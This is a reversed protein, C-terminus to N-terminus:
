PYGNISKNTPRLEKGKRVKGLGTEKLYIYYDPETTKFARPQKVFVKQLILSDKLSSQCCGELKVNPFEKPEQNTHEV